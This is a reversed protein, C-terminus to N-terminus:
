NLLTDIQNLCAQIPGSNDIIKDSLRIKQDISLQSEIRLKSQNYNFNNRRKLREYQQDVTCYVLWIESCIDNLNAEFLLPIVLALRPVDILKNLEENFRNRVFPHILSEM